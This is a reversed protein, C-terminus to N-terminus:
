RTIQGSDPLDGILSARQSIELWVGDPDRVFRIAAVDGLRVPSMAEDWGLGVLRHHELNVDTVQVTLYRFGVARQAGHQAAPDHLVHLLTTGVRWANVGVGTAGVGAALLEGLRVPDRSAWTVGVTQVGAYGVPVLRVPVGDPDHLDVPNTVHPTAIALERLCTHDEALTERSANLKLVAGRLGLRHQHIGGGVKLLEEYPLGVAREYFARSADVDRCFLGVDLHPKALQV